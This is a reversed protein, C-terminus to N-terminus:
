AIPKGQRDREAKILSLLQTELKTRQSPARRNIKSLVARPSTAAISFYLPPSKKLRGPSLMKKLSEGDTLKLFEATERYASSLPAENELCGLWNDRKLQELFGYRETMQRIAATSSLTARFARYEGRLIIWVAYNWYLRSLIPIVASSIPPRRLNLYDPVGKRSEVKRKRWTEWARFAPKLRDLHQRRRASVYEGVISRIGNLPCETPLKTGLEGPACKVLDCFNKYVREPELRPSKRLSRVQANQKGMIHLMQLM